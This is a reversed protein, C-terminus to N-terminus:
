CLSFKLRSSLSRLNALSPWIKVSMRLPLDASVFNLTASHSDLTPSKANNGLTVRPADFSASMMQLTKWAFFSYVEKSEKSLMDPFVTLSGNM